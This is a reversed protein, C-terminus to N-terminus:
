STGVINKDLAPTAVPLPKAPAPKTAELKPPQIKAFASKVEKTKTPAIKPM